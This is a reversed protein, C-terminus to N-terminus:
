YGKWAEPCELSKAFTRKGSCLTFQQHQAHIRPDLIDFFVRAEHLQQAADSELFLTM